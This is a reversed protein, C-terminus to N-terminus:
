AGPELLDKEEEKGPQNDGPLSEDLNLREQAWKRIAAFDNTDPFQVLNPHAPTDSKPIPKTQATEQAPESPTSNIPAEPTQQAEAYRETASKWALADPTPWTYPPEPEDPDYVGRFDEVPEPRSDLDRWAQNYQRNLSAEYRTLAGFHKIDGKLFRGALTALPSPPPAAQQAALREVIAENSDITPDEAPQQLAQTFMETEIAAIRRLRWECVAIKRVAALDRPSEPAAEEAFADFLARFDAENEGPIVTLQSRLGHQLANLSSARIGDATRPGTSRHSNRRNAQNQRKTAM